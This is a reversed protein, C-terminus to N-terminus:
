DEIFGRLKEAHGRTNMQIWRWTEVDPLPIIESQLFVDPSVIREGAEIAAEVQDLPGTLSYFGKGGMQARFRFEMLNVEGAKLAADASLLTAAITRCELVGISEEPPAPAKGNIIPIIQTHIQPLFLKDLLHEGAIAVGENFSEEVEAVQATILIIFKGTSTTRAELVTIPAKKIMGDLTIVGRALSRLEILGIAPQTM